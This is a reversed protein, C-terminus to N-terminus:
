RFVLFQWPVLPRHTEPRRRPACQRGGDSRDALLHSPHPPTGPMVPPPVRSRFWKSPRHLISPASAARRSRQSGDIVGRPSPCSCSPTVVGFGVNRVNALVRLSSDMCDNQDAKLRVFGALRRRPNAAVGINSDAATWTMTSRAVPPSQLPATEKRLGIVNPTETPSRSQVQPHTMSLNGALLRRSLARALVRTPDPMTSTPRMVVWAQRPTAECKLKVVVESVIMKEAMPAAMPTNERASRTRAIQATTWRGASFAM